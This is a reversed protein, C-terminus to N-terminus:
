DHVGLCLSFGQHEGPKHVHGILGEHALAAVHFQAYEFGSPSGDGNTDNCSAAQAPAPVVSAVALAGAAVFAIVFRRM